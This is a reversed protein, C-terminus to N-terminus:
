RLGAESQLSYIADSVDVIGDGTLDIAEPTEIGSVLQLFKIIDALESEYHITFLGQISGRSANGLPEIKLMCNVSAPGTVTWDYTGNNPEQDVLTQYTKGGDRSLSIRVDGGIGATDWLIPLTSRFLYTGAQAPNSVILHGAIRNQGGRVARLYIPYNKYLYFGRGSDFVYNWANSTTPVWTTSSVYYSSQTEPFFDINIAPNARNLDAISDIEKITPLRWDSFGSLESNECYSIANAWTQTDSATAQQWMLGTSTDTVTGDGNDVLRELAGPQGGRVARACYSISKRSSGDSGPGLYIRWANGSNGADTTSSWYYYNDVTDPFYTANIAPDDGYNVISRLEKRTPMRWDSRGGFTADNLAKIFDETDTVEGPTGANGGNTAPNSDYWTYTNDADHPDTYKKDGDKNTKAEWVLGTVNDKVM